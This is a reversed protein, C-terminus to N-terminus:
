IIECIKSKLMMRFKFEAIKWDEEVDIDQVLSEPIELPVADQMFLRQERRLGVVNLWYFMGADHYAAELDQSRASFSEPWFMSIRGNQIRISRQIPYSFKAVPIVSEAATMGLLQYAKLLLEASIFPATPLLCCVQSFVKGQREYAELVELVVEMLLTMDGATDPSRMFPVKAGYKLAVTAIENDETSVMVEDFCASKIAAEISYAIIPRDIFMKINKRPIRKSGGRAPIVALIQKRM